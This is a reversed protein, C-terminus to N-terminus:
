FIIKKSINTIFPIAAESGRLAQAIGFISLCFCIIGGVVGIFSGLVPIISFIFILVEFLFIVLGQRAHLLVFPNKRKIMLPIICLFFLYSIASFAKDQGTTKTM